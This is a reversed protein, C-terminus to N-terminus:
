HGPAWPSGVEKKLARCQQLWHELDLGQMEVAVVQQQLQVVTEKNKKYGVDLEQQLGQLKAQLQELEAPHAQQNSQLMEQM